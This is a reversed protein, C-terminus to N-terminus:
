HENHKLNVKQRNSVCEDCFGKFIVDHGTFEFGNTNLIKKELEAIFDMDVDVVRGCCICRAHYHDHCLHDYRDAGGPIERKRIEGMESLLNLNRYVTGKSIDPHKEVISNYVEDATAHSQLSKVTELVLARQVTNRKNM